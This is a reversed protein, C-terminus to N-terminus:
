NTIPIKARKLSSISKAGSLSKKTKRLNTENWYEDGMYYVQCNIQFSISFAVVFFPSQFSGFNRDSIM